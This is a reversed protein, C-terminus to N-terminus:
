ESPDCKPAPTWSRRSSSRGVVLRRLSNALKLDQRARGADGNSQGGFAASRLEIPQGPEGRDLSHQFAFERGDLPDDTEIGLGLEQKYRGGFELQKGEVKAATADVGRPCVDCLGREARVPSEVGDIRRPTHDRKRASRSKGPRLQERRQRVIQEARGILM